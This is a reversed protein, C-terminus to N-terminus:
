PGLPMPKSITLLNTSTLVLWLKIVWIHSLGKGELAVNTCWKETHPMNDHCRTEVIGKARLLDSFSGDRSGGSVRGQGKNVESPSCNDSTPVKSTPGLRPSLRVHVNYCMDIDNDTDWQTAM